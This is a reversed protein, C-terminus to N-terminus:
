QEVSEAQYAWWVAAPTIQGVLPDFADSLFSLGGAGNTMLAVGIDRVSLGSSM